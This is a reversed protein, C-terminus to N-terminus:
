IARAMVKLISVETRPFDVIKVKLPRISSCAVASNLLSKSHWVSRRL